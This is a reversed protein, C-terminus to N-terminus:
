YNNETPKLAWNYIELRKSGGVAEPKNFKVKIKFTNMDEGEVIVNGILGGLGDWRSILPHTENNRDYNFPTSQAAYVEEGVAEANEPIPQDGSQFYIDVYPHGRSRFGMYLRYEGPPVKMLSTEQTAHNYDIPFFEISLEGPDSEDGQVSLIIYYPIPIGNYMAGDPTADAQSVSLPRTIGVATYYEEQEEETLFQYYSVLSKIRTILVNNPVKLKTVNYIIGNSVWAPYDADIKQVSTRWIKGFPSRWDEVETAPYSTHLGDHFIAEKIWNIALLTDAILFEKGMMKYQTHMTEFCDEISQNDPLFLTFQKFGSYFDAQDFLPNTVYFVSDYIMGNPGMEIPISNERDFVYRSYFMISDRIISYDDGLETIYEYMGKLPLLLESIENVVGNKFRSSNVIKAANVYVDADRASINLYVKNLGPLRMGNKLEVKSYSLYTLHYGVMTTDSTNEYLADFNENKVAWITLFQNRGLEEDWGTAKLMNYFKSYDGAEASEFFEKLTLPSTVDSPFDKGEYYKNWGDSCSAWFIVSFILLLFLKKM